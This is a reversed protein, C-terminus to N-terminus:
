INLHFSLHNIDYELESLLTFFVCAIYKVSAIMCQVAM